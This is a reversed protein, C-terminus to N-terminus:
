ILSGNGSRKTFMELIESLNPDSNCQNTGSPTLVQISAQPQLDTFSNSQHSSALISPFSSTVNAQTGACCQHLLVARSEFLTPM